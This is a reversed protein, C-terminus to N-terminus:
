NAVVGTVDYLGSGFRYASSGQCPGAPPAGPTVPVELTGPADLGAGVALFPSHLACEALKADAFVTLDVPHSRVPQEISGPLDDCGALLTAALLITASRITHREAM